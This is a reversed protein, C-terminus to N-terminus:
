VNRERKFSDSFIKDVPQDFPGPQWDNAILEGFVLSCTKGTYDQLYTDYYGGGFGVRYGAESFILGPVILLDIQDKTVVDKSLPEEIGFSSVEFLTDQTVEYFIMERRPLSKPTVIRKGDAWAKEILLQTNFEFDTAKTTGIVQAQQWLKSAFLLQLIMQEKKNKNAQNKAIKQLAALGKKRMEKKEM